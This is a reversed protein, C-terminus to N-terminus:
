KPNFKQWSAALMRALAEIQEQAANANGTTMADQRWFVVPRRFTSGNHEFGVSYYTVVELNVYHVCADGIRIARMSLIITPYGLARNDHIKTRESITRKLSTLAADHTLGCERTEKSHHVQYSAQTLGKLDEDAGWAPIVLAAAYCLAASVHGARRAIGRMGIM